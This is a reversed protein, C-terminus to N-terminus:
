FTLVAQKGELAASIATLYNVHGFVQTSPVPAIVKSDLLKAVNNVAAQFSVPDSKAWNGLNLGSVTINKFVGSTVSLHLGDVDEIKEINDTYIVLHGNEALAKYMARVSKSDNSTAALKINGSGAQIKKLGEFSSLDEVSATVVKYGLHKALQAVASSVPTSRVGQLVVDGKQLHASSTLIGYAILASPLQAALNPNLNPIKFISSTPFVGSSKWTGYGQGLVLVSENPSFTGTSDTEAVVGVGVEGAVGTSCRNLSLGM